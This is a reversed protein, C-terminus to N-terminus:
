GPATDARCAAGCARPSHCMEGPVTERAARLRGQYRRRECDPTEDIIGLVANPEQALRYIQKQSFLRIPFRAFVDTDVYKWSGDPQREEVTRGASVHWRLRYDSGAHRYIVTVRTSDTLLGDDRRSKYPRRYKRMEADLAEPLELERALALRIFELISSKGTGHGGIICNLWPGLSISIPKGRGFYRASDLEIEMIHNDPAANPNAKAMSGRDVSLVGDLLALRLGEVNPQSMKVFTYRQGIDGVSHADSGEVLPLPGGDRKYGEKSDDAFSLFEPHENKWELALLEPCRIIDQLSTGGHQKGDNGERLYTQLVGDAGDAHAAICVGGQQAIIRAVEAPSTQTYSNSDGLKEPPLGCMGLIACLTEQSTGSDFVGILHSGGLVALEFGPLVVLGREKGAARVRDTWGAGNHDTVAVVELKAQLAGEVWQEPSIGKENFDSSAPTHIHLDCKWWRSGPYQVM